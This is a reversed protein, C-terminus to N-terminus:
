FSRCLGPKNPCPLIGELLKDIIVWGIDQTVFSIYKLFSLYKSRSSCLIIGKSLIDTLVSFIGGVEKLFIIEFDYMKAIKQYFYKTYRLYDVPAEHIWYILPTGIIIVGGRRLARKMEHFACFPDYVHELVHTCLITDFTNDKFPLASIESYLDPGGPSTLVDTKVYSNITQLFLPYFPSEGCGVDLLEGKAHNIVEKMAELFLRNSLISVTKSKNILPIGDKYKIPGYDMMMDFTM